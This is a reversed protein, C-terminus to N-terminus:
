FQVFMSTVTRHEAIWQSGRDQLREFVAPPLFAPVATVLRTLAPQEYAEWFLGEQANPM